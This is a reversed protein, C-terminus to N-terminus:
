SHYISTILQYYTTPIKFYPSSERNIGEIKTPKFGIIQLLYELTDISGFIYLSDNFLLLKAEQNLLKPFYTYIFSLVDVRNFKSILKMITNIHNQQLQNYNELIFELCPLDSRKIILELVGDQLLMSLSHQDDTRIDKKLREIDGRCYYYYGYLENDIIFREIQEPYNKLVWEIARECRLPTFTFNTEGRNIKPLIIQEFLIIFNKLKFSYLGNSNDICNLSNCDNKNNNNSNNNNSSNNSWVMELHSSFDKYNDFIFDCFLLKKHMQFQTSIYHHYESEYNYKLHDLFISYRNDVVYPLEILYNFNFNSKFRQYIIDFIKVPDKDIFNNNNNNNNNNNSFSSPSVKPLSGIDILQYFDMPLSPLDVGNEDLRNIFDNILNLDNSIIILELFQLLCLRNSPDINPNTHNEIISQIFNNKLTQYRTSNKNFISLLKPGKTSPIFRGLKTGEFSSSILIQKFNGSSVITWINEFGENSLGDKIFENGLHSDDFKVDYFFLNKYLNNNNSEFIISMGVLKRFIENEEEIESEFNIPSKLLLEKERLFESIEDLELKDLIEIKKNQLGIFKNFKFNEKLLKISLSSISYCTDLLFQFTIHFNTDTINFPVIHQASQILKATPLKLKSLYQISKNKLLSNSNSNSSSNNILLSKWMLEYDNENLDLQYNKSFYDSIETSGVIISEIYLEKLDKCDGELDYENVLVKFALLCNCKIIIKITENIDTLFYNSYNEFLNLYFKYNESERENNDNNNNNSDDKFNYFIDSFPITKEFNFALLDGNKVKYRLLEHYCKMRAMLNADIIEYYNFKDNLTRFESKVFGWIIKNINFNRYVSFFLEEKM